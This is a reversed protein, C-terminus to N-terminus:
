LEDVLLASGKGHKTIQDYSMGTERMLIKLIKYSCFGGQCRGMGARTYFKIGDLTRHGKRVATIIESESVQECRCIINGFAHNGRVLDDAEEMSLESFRYERDLHPDFDPKETLVCGAKKLLDKVYEGIAPSATLGPSQIGAVQIFNPAKESVDIYFDDGELCPRIGAFTTIADERAVVRMMKRSTDFIHELKETSTSLDEKDHVMEATPGVLVTGEVTPIILVGKSLPSPVPFLVHHPRAKTLKDLVYYEGKRARITFDEGGFIRSVKDAHLGAANVV